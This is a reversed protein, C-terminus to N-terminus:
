RLSRLHSGDDLLQQSKLLPPGANQLVQHIHFLVSLVYDSNERKRWSSLITCAQPDCFEGNEYNLICVTTVAVCPLARRIGRGM